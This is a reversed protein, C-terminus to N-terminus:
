NSNIYKRKFRQIEQEYIRYTVGLNSEVTYSNTWVYKVNQSPPGYRCLATLVPDRNHLVNNAFLVAHKDVNPIPHLDNAFILMCSQM